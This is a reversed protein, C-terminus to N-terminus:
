HEIDQLVEKWSRNHLNLLVNSDSPSDNTDKYKCYPTVIVCLEQSLGDLEFTYYQMSINFKSFINYGSIQDLIDPIIPLPYKKCVIAKHLSHLDTIQQIQRVKNPIIFIPSM